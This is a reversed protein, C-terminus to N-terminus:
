GHLYPYLVCVILFIAGAIYAVRKIYHELSKKSGYENTSNMGGLSFGLGGKPSMLMVAAAFVLGSVILAINLITTTM